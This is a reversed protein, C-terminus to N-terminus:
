NNEEGVNIEIIEHDCSYRENEPPPCMYDGYYFTLLADYNKPGRFFHGEFEYNDEEEFYKIDVLKPNCINYVIGSTNDNAYKILTKNLKNKINVTSFPCRVFSYLTKIINKLSSNGKGYRFMMTDMLFRAKKFQKNRLKEDKTTKDLPFIDIWIENNHMYRNFSQMMTTGKYKLKSWPFYYEKNKMSDLYFKDVNFANEPLSIFKDYEERLMIVDADDDWPIFGKHRVAGLLTGYNIFYKINNEDCVRKLEDLLELEKEHIKPLMSIYEDKNM